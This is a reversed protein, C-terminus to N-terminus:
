CLSKALGRNRDSTLRVKRFPALRSEVWRCTPLVLVASTDVPSEHRGENTSAGRFLMSSKLPEPFEYAQEM